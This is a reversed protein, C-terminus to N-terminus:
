SLGRCTALSPPVSAPSDMRRDHPQDGLRCRHAARHQDRNDGFIAQGFGLTFIQTAAGLSLAYARIMWERHRTIDRRRIATFAVIISAAMASAFFLRFVSLLPEKTM